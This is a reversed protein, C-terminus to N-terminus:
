HLKSGSFFKYIFFFFLIHYELNNRNFVPYLLKKSISACLSTGIDYIYEFCSNIVVYM